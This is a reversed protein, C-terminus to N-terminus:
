GGGTLDARVSDNEIDRRPEYGLAACRRGGSTAVNTVVSGISLM